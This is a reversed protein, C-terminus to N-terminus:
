WRKLLNVSETITEDDLREIDLSDVVAQWTIEAHQTVAFVHLHEINGVPYDTGTTERWDDLAIEVENWCEALVHRTAAQNFLINGNARIDQTACDPIIFPDTKRALDPYGELFELLKSKAYDGIGALWEDRDNLEHGCRSCYVDSQGFAWAQCQPCEKYLKMNPLKGM